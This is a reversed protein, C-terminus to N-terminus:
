AYIVLKASEYYRECATEIFAPLPFLHYYSRALHPAKVLTLGACHMYLLVDTFYVSSVMIGGERGGRTGM